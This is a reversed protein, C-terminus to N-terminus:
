DNAHDIECFEPCLCEPEATRARAPRKRAAGAAADERGPSAKLAQPAVAVVSM